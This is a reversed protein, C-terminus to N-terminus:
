ARLTVEPASALLRDELIRDDDRISKAVAELQELSDAVAEVQGDDLVRGNFDDCATEVADVLGNHTRVLAHSRARDLERLMTSNRAAHSSPEGGDTRLDKPEASELAERIADTEGREVALAADTTALAEEVMRDRATLRLRDELSLGEKPESAIDERAAQLEEHAAEIHDLADLSM